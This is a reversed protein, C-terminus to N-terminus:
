KVSRWWADWQAARVNTEVPPEKETTKWEELGAALKTEPYELDHLDLLAQVIRARTDPNQTHLSTILGPISVDDLSRSRNDVLLGLVDIVTQTPLDKYALRATLREVAARAEPALASGAPPTLRRMLFRQSRFRDATTANAKTFRTANYWVQAKESTYFGTLGVALGLVVLVAGVYPWVKLSRDQVYLYYDRQTLIGRDLLLVGYMDPQQAQLERLLERAERRKQDAAFDKAPIQAPAKEARLDDVRKLLAEKSGAYQLVLVLLKQLNDAHSAIEGHMWDEIRARRSAVQVALREAVANVWKEFPQWFRGTEAPMTISNVGGTIIERYGFGVLLAAFLSTDHLAGTYDLGWFMVIPIAVHAAFLLWTDAFGWRSPSNPLLSNVTGRAVVISVLLILLYCCLAPIDPSM